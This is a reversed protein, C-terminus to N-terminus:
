VSLIRDTKERCRLSSKWNTDLLFVLLCAFLCVPHSVGSPLGFKREWILNVQEHIMISLISPLNLTHLLFSSNPPDDRQSTNIVSCGLISSSQIVM